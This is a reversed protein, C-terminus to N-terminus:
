PRDEDALSRYYREIWERFKELSPERAGQIVEDRERPPLHGWGRSMAAAPPPQSDDPDTTGRATSGDPPKAGGAPQGTQDGTSGPNRRRPDFSDANGGSRMGGRRAAAAIAANLEDIIRQQRSQTEAGADFSQKLDNEVRKMEDIIRTIPDGDDDDGRLLRKSLDDTRREDTPPVPPPVTGDPPQASATTALALAFVRAM